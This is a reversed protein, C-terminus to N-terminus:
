DLQKRDETFYTNAGNGRSCCCPPSFVIRVNVSCGWTGKVGEIETHRDLIGYTGIEPTVQTLESAFISLQDVMSNVTRKLTSTEGEVEIEIKQTLNGIAVIAVDLNAISRVQDTMNLCMRNVHLCSSPYPSVPTTKIFKLDSHWVSLHFTKGM